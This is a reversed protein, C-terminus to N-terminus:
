PLLSIAMIASIYKNNWIIKNNSVYTKKINVKVM